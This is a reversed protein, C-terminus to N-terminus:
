KTEEEVYFSRVEKRDPSWVAITEALKKISTDNRSFVRLAEGNVYNVINWGTAGCERVWFVAPLEDARILRKSPLPKPKIRHVYLGEGSRIQPTSNPMPAWGSWTLVECEEHSGGSCVFAIAEITDKMEENTM